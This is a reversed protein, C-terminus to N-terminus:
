RTAILVAMTVANFGAHAFIGPGLRGTRVALVGLVVGFAALAPLQLLEGHALGFGLASVVVAPGSGFRNQISRLLLGRYFLEEVIPAGVIVLAALVALGVNNQAQDTLGRAPAELRDSLDKIFHAFPLYLLPVVILQTGVGVAIGWLDRGREFVLGFDTDFRGSGKRRTVYRMSAVLGIWLGVLGFATAVISDIGAGMGLAIVYAFQSSLFGAAFCIVADPM